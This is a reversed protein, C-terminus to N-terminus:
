REKDENRKTKTKIKVGTERPFMKRERKM